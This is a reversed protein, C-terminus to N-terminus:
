FCCVATKVLEEDYSSARVVFCVNYSKIPGVAILSSQQKKLPTGCFSFSLVVDRKGVSMVGMVVM